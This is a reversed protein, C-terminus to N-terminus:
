DEANQRKIVQRLKDFITDKRTIPAILPQPILLPSVTKVVMSKIASPDKEPKEMKGNPKIFKKVPHISM